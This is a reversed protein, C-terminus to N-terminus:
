VGVYPVDNADTWKQSYEGTSGTNDAGDRLSPVVIKGGTVMSADAFDHAGPRPEFFALVLKTSRTLHGSVQQSTSM